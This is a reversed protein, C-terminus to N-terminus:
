QSLKTLVKQREGKSSDFIALSINNVNIPPLKKGNYLGYKNPLSRRM